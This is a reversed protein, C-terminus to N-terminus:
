CGNRRQRCPERTGCSPSLGGPYDPTYKSPPADKAMELIRDVEHRETATFNMLTRVNMGYIHDALTPAHERLFPGEPGFFLYREFTVLPRDPRGTKRPGIGVWTIKEAIGESRPEAGVGGVGIVAEYSRARVTKMCDHIGFCGDEDPDGNHTRKYVLTRM